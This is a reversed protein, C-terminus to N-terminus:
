DAPPDGPESERGTSPLPEMWTPGHSEAEVRALMSQALRHQLYTLVGTDVCTRLLAVGEEEAGQGFAELAALFSRECLCGPRAGCAGLYAEATVEGNLLDLAARDDVDVRGNLDAARLAKSLAAVARDATASEWLAHALAATQALATPNHTHEALCDQLVTRAEERRGLEALCLARQFALPFFSPLSDAATTVEELAAEFDGLAYLALARHHAIGPHGGGTEEQELDQARGFAAASGAFDGVFRLYAGRLCSLRVQDADPLAEARERDLRCNALWPAQLERLDPQTGAYAAAYLWGTARTAYSRASSPRFVGWAEFDDLMPQLDERRGEAILRQGRFSARAELAPLYDSRVAIARNFSDIVEEPHHHGVAFGHLLWGLASEIRARPVRNLLREGNVFDGTESYAYSLALLTEPRDGDYQLARNLDAIANQPRGSMLPVLGRYLHLEAQDVALKEAQDLLADARPGDHEFLLAAVAKDLVSRGEVRRLQHVLLWSLTGLVLVAAVLATQLRHRAVWRMVKVATPTRRAKIPEGACFRRCDEAVDAARQYRRAPEKQMCTQLITELAKPISRNIRRLPTPEGNLVGNLVAERCSGGFAPQLALLEHMTVGLAYIDSRGDVRAHGGGAQEPSMYRVTGVIDGSMTVTSQRDGLALGFDTVWVQDREDVLLNSPKIDRHITGEAHAYDLAEAVQRGWTAVRRFWDAQVAAGSARMQEIHEALSCGEIYQMAYYHIGGEEGVGYVPVIHSHHLRAASEAERMFRELAHDALLAGAPLVKLAVRRGLSTQVAEYVVGMGGRGRERVIRYEGLRCGPQITPGALSSSVSEVFELTRFVGRLADAHQPHAALYQQQDPTQGEALEKLYEDLIDEITSVDGLGEAGDAARIIDTDKAVDAHEAGGPNASASAAGTEASADAAPPSPHDDDDHRDSPM